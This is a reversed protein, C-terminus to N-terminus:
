KTASEQTNKEHAVINLMKETAIVAAATQDSDVGVTFFNIKEKPDNWRILTEVLAETKGGPPIRVRYDTLQPIKMDYELVAEKVAKMFADYGGEGTATSSSTRGQYSVSVAAEPADTSSVNIKYADIKVLHEAPTKLVDAIIMLLDEPVVTHKKDGLEIIRDLVKNRNTDSLNIGLKDLNHDLSAKGSLKGLAYRRERGFRGPSLRTAYLDGKADGDAHIGATQTFVDNGLIPSNEAINKGSFTEVVASISALRSENINTKYDTHDAIATVIEALSANGAREGLGNVSAHIGSAGSQIAAISNATAFGYDNHGHYDFQADPWGNVMLAIFHRVEDPSLVGLTDALLVRAIPFKHLEDLIDSVYSFNDRVGNSWDELYINVQLDKSLAYNITEGIRERHKQPTIGLQQQCHHESGKALLNICTGGARLIWDVSREGDCFGLMEVREIVGAQRAWDTVRLAGGLEGESVRASAIEVRDVNVDTILLRAMHLKESPTYSVGPTQEGDRLTTDMISITEQKKIAM